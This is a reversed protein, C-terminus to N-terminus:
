PHRPLVPSFSPSLGAQWSLAAITRSSPVIRQTAIMLKAIEKLNGQDARRVLPIPQLSRAHWYMRGCAEEPSRDIKRELTMSRVGHGDAQGAGHAGGESATGYLNSSKDAYLSAQPSVGDKGSFNQLVTYTGTSTGDPLIKFVVGANGKVPDV